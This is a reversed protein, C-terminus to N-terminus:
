TSPVELRMESLFGCMMFGVASASRLLKLFPCLLFLRFLHEMFGRKRFNNWIERLYYNKEYFPARAVLLLLYHWDIKCRGELREHTETYFLSKVWNVWLVRSVHIPWDQSFFFFNWIDSPRQCKASKDEFMDAHHVKEIKKSGLDFCMKLISRNLYRFEECSM